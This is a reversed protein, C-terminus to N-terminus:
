RYPCISRSELWSCPPRIGYERVHDLVTAPVGDLVLRGEALVLVRDAMDVLPELDHVTVVQTIGQARNAQLLDRLELAAPYDLGSFPEDLLLVQPKALLATALCLKRKQGYSLAHVPREWHDGLGLRAALQLAHAEGQRLTADSGGLAAVSLLMDEGVTSGIIQMDADQLLLSAVRRLAAEKGPVEVGCVTLSGAVPRALGALVSLLTSKGAGNVGCLCVLEGAEVSFSVEALAVAVAGPHACTLSVADIM